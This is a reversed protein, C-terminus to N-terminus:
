GKLTLTQLVPFCASGAELVEERLSCLARLQGAEQAPVVRGWFPWLPVVLELQTSERPGPLGLGPEAGHPYGAPKPQDLALLPAVLPNRGLGGDGAEPGPISPGGSSDRPKGSTAAGWSSTALSLTHVGNNSLGLAGTEYM